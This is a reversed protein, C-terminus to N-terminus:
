CCGADPFIFVAPSATTDPSLDYSLYDTKEERLNGTKPYHPDYTTFKAGKEQAAKVAEAENEAIVVLGGGSHFNSTLEAINQWIFIKM